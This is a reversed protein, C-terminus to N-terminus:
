PSITTSSVCFKVLPMDVRQIWARVRQRQFRGVAITIVAHAVIQVTAMVAHHAIESIKAHAATQVTAMVARHGIESIKAHAATQVTGM